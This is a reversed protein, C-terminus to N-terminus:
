VVILRDQKTKSIYGRSSCRVSSLRRVVDAVLVYDPRYDIMISRM